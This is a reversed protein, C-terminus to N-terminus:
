KKGRLRRKSKKNLEAEITFKFIEQGRSLDRESGKFKISRFDNSFKENSKLTNIFKEVILFEKEDEHVKSIGKIIFKLNKFELGTIAMDLPTIESIIKLKESWIIREGETKILNNIDKKSLNIQGENKLADTDIILKDIINKRETIISNAQNNILLFWVALAFLSVSIVTFLIWRNREQHLEQLEANSITKNLNILIYKKDL